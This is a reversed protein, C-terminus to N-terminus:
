AIKEGLTSVKLEIRKFSDQLENEPSKKFIFKERIIQYGKVTAGNIKKLKEETEFYKQIDSAKPQKDINATEYAKNIIGKLIKSPIFMGKIIGSEKLVSAIKNEHSLQSLMILKQKILLQNYKLRRVEDIGVLKLADYIFPYKAEILDICECHAPNTTFLGKIASYQEFTENFKTRSDNNRKLLDAPELTFTQNQAKFGTRNQEGAMIAVSSYTENALKYKMLDYTILNRDITYVGNINTIYNDNLSAESYKVTSTKNYAEILIEADQTQKVTYERYLDFTTIESFRTQRFIHLARARYNTDRIRGLIQRFSTSIDNLTHTRDGDSVIIYQGEEDSIDSGEFCTSTYFNIKKAKDGVESRKIGKITRVYKKNGKSWVAKCNDNTLGCEKIMSEIFQVSNVFIHANQLRNSLYDDILKKTTAEVQVTKINKIHIEELDLPAVIVPIGKLEELMFESDTPTATMFCWKDFLTYTKLLDNIAKKRLKYNNMIYHVEDILLFYDSLRRNNVEEIAEIVKHLSDYTVIIKHHENTRLYDVIDPTYVGDKVGFLKFDMPTRENPYQNVKNTVLQELPVTIISDRNMNEIELTTGGCGTAVKNFICNSPLEKYYNSLYDMKAKM